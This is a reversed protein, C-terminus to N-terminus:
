CRRYGCQGTRDLIERHVTKAPLELDVQDSREGDRSRQQRQQALPLAPNDVDRRRRALCTHRQHRRIDGGLVSELPEAVHHTEFKPLQSDLDRDDLRSEDGGRHSALQYEVGLSGDAFQGVLAPPPVPRLQDRQGLRDALVGRLPGIRRDRPLYARGDASARIRHCAWVSGAARRRHCWFYRCTPPSRVGRERCPRRDPPRSDPPATSAAPATEAGTLLTAWRVPTVRLVMVAM